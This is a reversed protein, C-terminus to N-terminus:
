AAQYQAVSVEAGLAELKGVLKQVADVVGFAPVLEGAPHVTITFKGGSMAGVIKGFAEAPGILADLSRPVSSALRWRITPQAHVAPASTGMGATIGVGAAIGVGAKKLLSRRSLSTKEAVKKM